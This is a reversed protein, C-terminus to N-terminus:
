QATTKRRRRVAGALGVLGSGLLFMSAPEPVPASIRLAGADYCNSACVNDAGGAHGIFLTNPSGAWPNEPFCNNDADACGGSHVNDAYGLYLTYAATSFVNTWDSAEPHVLGGPDTGFNNLANSTSTQGGDITVPSGNILITTLCPSSCIDSTDFNFGATQTLVLSDGANLTVGTGLDWLKNACSGGTDCWTTGGVTVSVSTITVAQSVTPMALLALVFTFGMFLRILRM